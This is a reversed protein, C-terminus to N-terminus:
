RVFGSPAGEHVPARDSLKRGAPADGYSLQISRLNGLSSAAPEIGAPSMQSTAPDEDFVVRVADGVYRSGNVSGVFGVRARAVTTAASKHKATSFM